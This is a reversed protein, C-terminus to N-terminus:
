LRESIKIAVRCGAKIIASLLAGGLAERAGAEIAERQHSLEDDRFGTL